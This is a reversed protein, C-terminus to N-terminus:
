SAFGGDPLRQRVVAELCAVVEEVTRDTTDVSVAGEPRTLPGDARTSDIRDRERIGSIVTTEDVQQGGSALQATRRRARVAVDADLYFRVPADPFVVSGQDRGESVLRPHQRAIRRQHEVLVARVEPRSAVSAVMANVDVDRIRSTIDREGLMLRPPDTTWDFRMQAAQVARAIEIGDAPDIGGEVAVLAAARYMAGTDLFDIGLRAALRHAVTSKGTGAPGDITIVVPAPARDEAQTSAM